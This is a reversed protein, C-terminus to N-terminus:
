VNITRGYPDGCMSLLQQLTYQVQGCQNASLTSDCSLLYTLETDEEKDILFQLSSTSLIQTGNNNSGSQVGDKLKVGPPNFVVYRVGLQRAITKVYGGDFGYGLLLVRNTTSMLDAVYSEVALTPSGDGYISKLFRMGAIFNEKATAPWLAILPGFLTAIQFAISEGWTDLVRLLNTGLLSSRVVVVHFNSSSDSYDTLSLQVGSTLDNLTAPLSTPYVRSFTAYQGFWTALDQDANAGFTDGLAALLALDYAHLPVNGNSNFSLSCVPSWTSSGFIPANSASAIPSTWRHAMSNGIGLIFVYMIAMIVWLILLVKQDSRLSVRSMHLRKEHERVVPHRYGFYTKVDFCRIYRFCTNRCCCLYTDWLKENREQQMDKDYAIDLLACIEKRTLSHQRKRLLM